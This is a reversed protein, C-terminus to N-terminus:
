AAVVTIKEAYLAGENLSECDTETAGGVTVAAVNLSECDTELTGSGETM